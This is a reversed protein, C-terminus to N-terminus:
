RLVHTGFGPFERKRPLSRRDARKSKNLVTAIAVTKVPVTFSDWFKSNSFHAAASKSHEM